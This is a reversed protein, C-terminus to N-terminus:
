LYGLAHRIEQVAEYMDPAQELVARTNRECDESNTHNIGASLGNEGRHLDEHKALERIHEHEEETLLDGFM